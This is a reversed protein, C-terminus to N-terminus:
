IINANEFSGNSIDEFIAFVSLEGSFDAEPTGSGEQYRIIVADSSNGKNAAEYFILFSDTGSAGEKVQKTDGTLNSSSTESELLAEAANLINTLLTDPATTRATFDVTLESTAFDIVANTASSIVTESRQGSGIENIVLDGSTANGAKGSEM